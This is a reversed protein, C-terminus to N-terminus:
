FEQLKGTKRDDGLGLLDTVTFQQDIAPYNTLDVVALGRFYYDHTEFYSPDVGSYGPAYLVYYLDDYYGNTDDHVDSYSGVQGFATSYTTGDLVWDTPYLGTVPPDIIEVGPASCQRYLIKTENHEYRYDIIYHDNSDNLCGPYVDSIIDSGKVIVQGWYGKIAIRKNAMYSVIGSSPIGYTDCFDMGNWYGSPEIGSSTVEDMPPRELEPNYTKWEGHDIPIDDGEMTEPDLGTPQSDFESDNWLVRWGDLGVATAAEQSGWMMDNDLRFENDYSINMRTIDIMNILSRVGECVAYIGPNVNYSNIMINARAIGNADTNSSSVVEDMETDVDIDPLTGSQLLYTMHFDVYKNALLGQEINRVEAFFSAQMGPYASGLYSPHIHVKYVTDLPIPVLVLNAHEVVDKEFIFTEAADYVLYKGDYHNTHNYFTASGGSGPIVDWATSYTYDLKNSEGVDIYYIGSPNVNEIPKIDSDLEGVIGNNVIFYPTGPIYDLGTVIGSSLPGYVRYDALVYYEHNSSYFYGHKIISYGDSTWGTKELDDSYGIGAIYSSNM